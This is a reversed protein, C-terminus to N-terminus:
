DWALPAQCEGCQRQALDLWELAEDLVRQTPGSHIDVAAYLGGFRSAIGLRGEGGFAEALSRSVRGEVDVLAGPPVQVGAAGQPVVAMVEAEGTRLGPAREQLIRHLAQCVDCGPHLLAVLMDRRQWADLTGRPGGGEAELRFLPVEGREHM